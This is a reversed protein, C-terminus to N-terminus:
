AAARSKKTKRIQKEKAQKAVSTLFNRLQTAEAQLAAASPSDVSASLQAEVQELRASVAPQSDVKLANLQAVAAVIEEKPAGSQKLARIASGCGELQAIAENLDSPM